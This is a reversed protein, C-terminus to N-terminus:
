RGRVHADERARSVAVALRHAALGSMRRRARVEEVVADPGASPELQVVVHGIDAGFVAVRTHGATGHWVAGVTAFDGDRPSIEYFGTYSDASPLPFSLWTLLEGAAVDTEYPGVMVDTLEVTRRGGRSDLTVSAGLASGVAILEASPDAHAVSGGITGRRRIAPHGIHAAARSLVPVLDRVTPHAELTAHRVLAGVILRGDGTGLRELEGIAGVDVLRRPRAVRLNLMPVLSQGGALVRAEDGHEGLLDVAEAVTAARDYAFPPPKM